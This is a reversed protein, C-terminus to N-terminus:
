DHAQGGGAMAGLNAQSAESTISVIEITTYNQRHGWRRRNNSKPKYTFGVVKPGRRTGIVKAVVKAGVLEGPTAVTKSGDSVMVTELEVTEGPGADLLEVDLKQGERVLEQKGGTSIVAFM